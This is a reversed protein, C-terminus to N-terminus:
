KQARGDVEVMGFGSSNKEGAGCEWMTQLLEVSGSALFPAQAGIIQIGKFEINKTGGRHAALYGASFTLEFDQANALPHGEHLTQYKRVLNKRVAESFAPGEEAPRLYRTEPKGNIEVPVAAVM